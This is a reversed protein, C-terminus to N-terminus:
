HKGGAELLAVGGIVLVMGILQQWTLAEHFVLWSIVAVLV